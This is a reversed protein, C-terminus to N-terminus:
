PAPQIKALGANLTDQSLLGPVRAAIGGTATYFVTMPPGLGDLDTLIAGPPDFVSPYNLGHEAIWTTAGGRSDKVDVGLFQVDRHKAAAARLLPAEQACPTCWSAWVNAVVPTGRMARLLRDFGAVDTVPLADTTTPIPAGTAVVIAPMPDASPRSSEPDGGGICASLTLVCLILAPVRPRTMVRM